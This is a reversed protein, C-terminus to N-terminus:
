RMVRAYEDVHITGFGTVEGVTGFVQVRGGKNIVAGSVTGRVIACGGEDVHLDGAVLGYLTLAAGGTVWDDGQVTGRLIVDHTITLQGAIRGTIEEM